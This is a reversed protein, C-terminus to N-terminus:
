EQTSKKSRAPAVTYIWAATVGWMDALDSVKLGTAKADAVAQPTDRMIEHELQDRLRRKRAIAEWSTEEPTDDDAPM